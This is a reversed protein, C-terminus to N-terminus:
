ESLVQHVKLQNTIVSELAQDMPVASTSGKSLKVVFKVDLLSEYISPYKIPLSLCDEFYLPLWRKYNTRDFAFVLQLAQQIASLHLQWNGERHSRTLDQLVPFVKEIFNNWYLFLKSKMKRNERINQLGIFRTKSLLKEWETRVSEINIDLILQCLETVQQNVQKTNNGEFLFQDFVLNYLVESFNAM